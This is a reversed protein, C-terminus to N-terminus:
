KMVGLIHREEIACLLDDRNFGIHLHNALYHWETVNVGNSKAESLTSFYTISQLKSALPNCFYRLEYIIM